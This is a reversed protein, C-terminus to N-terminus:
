TLTRGLAPTGFDGRVRGVVAVVGRRELPRAHTVGGTVRSAGGSTRDRTVPLPTSRVPTSPRPPSM